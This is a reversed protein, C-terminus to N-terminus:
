SHRHFPLSSPQSLNFTVNECTSESDSALLCWVCSYFFYKEKDYHQQWTKKQQRSSGTSWCNRLATSSCKYNSKSHHTNKKRGEKIWNPQILCSARQIWRKEEEKPKRKAEQQAAAASCLKQQDAFTVSQQNENRPSFRRPMAPIITHKHM